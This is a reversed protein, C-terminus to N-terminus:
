VQLLVASFRMSVFEHHFIDCKMVKLSKTPRADDSERGVDDYAGGWVAGAARVRAAPAGCVRATEDSNSNM